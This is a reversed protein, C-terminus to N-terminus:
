SYGRHFGLWAIAAPLQESAERVDEFESNLLYDIDLTENGVKINKLKPVVIKKM